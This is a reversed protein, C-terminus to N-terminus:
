QHVKMAAHNQAAQLNSLLDIVSRPLENFTFAGPQGFYMKYLKHFTGDTKWAIIAENINKIYKKNKPAVLIARGEGVKFPKGIVKMIGHSTKAWWAASPYDMVALDTRGKVLDDIQTEKNKALIIKVGKLKKHKIYDLYVSGEHVGIRKQALGNKEEPHIKTSSKALYGGYSVLYPITFLYQKRREPTIVIASIGMDVKNEKVSSFIDKLPVQKYKCKVKLKQCIYDYLSIDFGYLSDQNTKM